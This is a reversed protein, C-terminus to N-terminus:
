LIERDETAVTVSQGRGPFTSVLLVMRSFGLHRPIQSGGLVIHILTRSGGRAGICTYHKVALVIPKWGILAPEFGAVQELTM